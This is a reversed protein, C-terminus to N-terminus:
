RNFELRMGKKEDFLRAEDLNEYVVNGNVITYLVKSSFTYGEFPSWNCKYYINDKNVSWSSDLDILVLDAWYGERIYGRQAINFLEAPVHCMKRVIEELSIQKRQFFELMACLSHQVLPGGSPAKFYTQQKEELTHPAHDTAIVDIRNSLLGEFLSKKDEPTKIAPNWKILTGLDNYDSQDFWLHHICAEATIRKEPTYPYPDFLELEKGTSLHLVHLRSNYKKALEVALSSSKYCAETSRIDPHYHIPVDEGFKEKYAYSNQRITQEDECHTAILVPSEAFIGHLTNPNDVLMNGTSAGMFVKLGCTNAPNIKKIEDLNDNTAGFYFSYNALSVSAARDHKEELFKITTTPPNTNPMEMFSTVGGAVAAISESQIDAKHTLGPDRFHVQDDVVGPILYKGKADIAKCEPLNQPLHDRFIKDIIKNKVFVSGTFIEGDNIIHADRILLCSM